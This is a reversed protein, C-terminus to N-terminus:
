GLGDDHEHADYREMDREFKTPANFEDREDADTRGDETMHNETKPMPDRPIM